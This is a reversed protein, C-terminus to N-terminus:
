PPGLTLVMLVGKADENENLTLLIRGQPDACCDWQGSNTNPIIRKAVQLFNASTYSITIVTLM